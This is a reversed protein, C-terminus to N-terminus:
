YYDLLWQQLNMRNNETAPFPIETPKPPPIGHRPCTCPSSIASEPAHTHSDLSPTDTADCATDPESPSRTHLTEGVTPFNKTIMGLAMCTEQSLFLKDSDSTVYMIQQSELTQGSPSKGSFRFIVTGLIKIGNNNVAHMQMTVRILESKRLGLRRIGKKSALCSQCGTDAM